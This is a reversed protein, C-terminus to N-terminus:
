CWKAVLEPPYGKNLECIDSGDSVQTILYRHKGHCFGAWDIDDLDVFLFERNCDCSGDGYDWYDLNRKSSAATKGTVTDVVIVTVAGEEPPWAAEVESAKM